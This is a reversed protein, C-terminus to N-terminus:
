NKLSEEKISAVSRLSRHNGRSDHIAMKREGISVFDQAARLVDVFVGAATVGPGAGPGRIILPNSDYRKTRISIINDSGKLGAFAHDAPVEKLEVKAKGESIVGVYRLVANKNTASKIRSQLQSDEQKLAQYFEDVSGTDRCSEPVLNEVNIDSMELPLGIERALILLKRAVDTGSLDDRPDPETFGQDQAEKVIASFPKEGTFQNFIYSLTGSLIGEIEIVEDGSGLLDKLTEIIPLGAGVNTEYYFGAGYERSLERLSQYEDFPRSNAKKNPTVVPIYAKLCDAYIDPIHDNATCDVMIAYSKNLAVMGEFFESPSSHPTGKELAGSWADLQVPTDSLLMKRSNALGNVVLKIGIKEELIASQSEIQSLLEKGITGVGAIFLHVKKVESLFFAQHVVNLAKKVQEQRIIFSINLESLGQAISLINIGNEGLARFLMGATGRRGCMNQGVAALIAVNELVEIPEVHGVEQELKFENDITEQARKSDEEHVAFCISHESSAQAILIVNVEQEALSGFLREAMGPIGMMGGGKLNLIAANEISSIGVLVQDKAGNQSITTGSHSPNFTNKIIIPIGQEIAPKMTSPHIVKAGFHSLEMAEEYSMEPVCFAEKVKRPDASMVGDVDTWIEIADAKLAAGLLSASYDSGSRGLTTTYGEHSRAIFGTMIPIGKKDKLYHSINEFSKEFDVKAQGHTGDTVLVERADMDFADMGQACMTQAVLLASLREGFSMVVDLTRVSFERVLFIGHLIDELENFRKKVSAVMSSQKEVPIFAKVRELHLDHLEMLSDEYGEDGDKARNAMDILVNTTGQFASVVVAIDGEAQADRIIQLVNKISAESGLSSGGFKFVKM